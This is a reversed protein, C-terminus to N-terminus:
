APLLNANILHDSKSLDRLENLVDPLRAPARLYLRAMAVGIRDEPSPKARRALNTPQERGRRVLIARIANQRVEFTVNLYFPALGFHTLSRTDVSAAVLRQPLDGLAPFVVIGSTIGVRLVLGPDDRTV